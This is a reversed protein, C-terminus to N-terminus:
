SLQKRYTEKYFKLSVLTIVAFAIIYMAMADQRGTVQMLWTGM